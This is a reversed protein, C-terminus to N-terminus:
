WEEQSRRKAEEVSMEGRLIANWYGGFLDGGITGRPYEVSHEPPTFDRLWAWKVVYRMTDCNSVLIGGAYYVGDEVKINWVDSRGADRVSVM